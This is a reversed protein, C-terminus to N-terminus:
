LYLDGTVSFRRRAVANIRSIDFIRLVQTRRLIGALGDDVPGGVEPRRRGTVEVEFTSARSEPFDVIQIPAISFDGGAAKRVAWKLKGLNFSGGGVLEWILGSARTRM